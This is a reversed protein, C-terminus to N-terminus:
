DLQKLYDYLAQLDKMLKKFLQFTLSQHGDSKANYPEKHVEILLGNVGAAVSAKALPAILEIKGSAHSPDAFVPLHSAHKLLPIASIDFTNRVATEFTRIGRECLIVQSNGTTLIYEAALLLEEVTAMIGRKLLIPKGSKGAKVLLAFNQMNRAGIQIIDAYQIIIDIDEPSLIETVVALGTKERAEALYELAEIGLGQFSYPSTRPKFAGGRLIHVGCERLFLATEIIQERSEVACPGAAFILESEGITLNNIIISTNVNRTERAALTYSKSLPIVNEVASFCMIQQKIEHLDTGNVVIVLHGNSSHSNYQLQHRDLFNYLEEIKQVSADKKSIIIM